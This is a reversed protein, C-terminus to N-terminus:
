KGVHRCQAVLEKTATLVIARPRQSATLTGVGEEEHKLESSIPLLYSLTKGSGTPATLHFVNETSRQLSSFFSYQCFTPTHIDKAELYNYITPHLPFHHFSPLRLSSDVTSFYKNRLLLSQALLRNTLM